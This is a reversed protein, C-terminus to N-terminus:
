GGGSRAAASRASVELGADDGDLLRELIRALTTRDTRSLPAYLEARVRDAIRNGEALLREGRATLRHEIRRGEGQRRDILGLKLLRLALTGFAQDSQFTALALEHASAGPRAAVARLTDWQVLSIGIPALAGDMTRYQRYQAQKVARGLRELDSDM